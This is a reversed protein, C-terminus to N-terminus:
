FQYVTIEFPHNNLINDSSNTFIDVYYKGTDEIWTAYCYTSNNNQLLYKTKKQQFVNKIVSNIEIRSRYHGASIRSWILSTGFDNQFIDDTPANTGTQTLLCSYTLIKSSGKRNLLIEFDGDEHKSILKYDNGDKVTRFSGVADSPNELGDVGTKNSARILENLVKAIEQIDRNSSTIRVEHITNYIRNQLPRKRQIEGSM